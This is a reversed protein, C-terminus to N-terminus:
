ALELELTPTESEDYGTVLATGARVDGRFLELRDGPALEEGNWQLCTEGDRLILRGAYTM